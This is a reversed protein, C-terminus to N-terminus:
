NLASQLEYKMTRKQKPTPHSTISARHKIRWVLIGVVVSLGFVDTVRGPNILSISAVLLAGRELWSIWYGCWGQIGAAAAFVGVGASFAAFFIKTWSGQMLLAESYLFMFAVIFGPLSHVFATIATKWWNARAISAAVVAVLAVPPTSGSKIAFYFLFLHTGLKPAGATILAPAAFMALLLYAIPTPMGMGLITAAVIALLATIILSGDSIALIIETLRPGLGTTVLAAQLLGISIILATISAAQRVGDDLIHLLEAISVRTVTRSLGALLAVVLSILGAYAPTYSEVILLYFLLCPAILLHWGDRFSERASPIENEPIGRLGEKLAEIHIVCFLSLYYLVSPLVAALAITAYPIGTVQAMIFAAAGMIPPVLQAGESSNTEVAGAVHPKFGSRIMMPITFTGTTVVNGISSGVMTGLGASALMAGKAAGGTQRGMVANALNIMFDGTKTAQLTAGFIMFMFLYTAAVKLGTGFLGENTYAVLYVFRQIDMGAHSFVGPLLNGFLMYFAGVTGLLALVISQRRAAELAVVVMLLGVFVDVRTLYTSGWVNLIREFELVVYLMSGVATFAALIDLAFQFKRLVLKDSRDRGLFAIFFCPELM